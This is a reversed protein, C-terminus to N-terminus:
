IEIQTSLEIVRNTPLNFYEVASGSNRAMAAFLRDRWLAMGEIRISPIIAERSLFFSTELPRCELGQHRCVELAQMIDPQEMFGFKLTIRYCDHGLSDIEVREAAPVWPVEAVIVTLFVVREHLVKNHVLNHLLAHPVTGTASTLFVATGPVRVPPDCYLLELFTDLAVTQQKLQRYLLRRGQRWTAMLTFMVAGVLLPYWGGDHIKYLTASFFLADVCVFLGTAFGAILLSYGWGHRMVFFTLITTILMTGAVAVGYASALKSSSGFAVVTLIVAIFLIRNLGPLYVQGIAKASTHMVDLRPLYGLQIAQRCLSFAGSITAQSAIVTAATALGIMPYLAWDPYAHYFPNAIAGPKAILLAGQGFYNLVLSPLVLGFWAIRIPRKGFHGMDAYLAEAGTVALFISGLVVFSLFGHATVFRLAHVPNTALLVGPYREINYIGAAALALFWLLCIPGFFSGVVTTGQRQVAFLVTLVGVTIPIVYPKFMLTGIELGEVASLVSIAPTLVADGFFLAAGFVGLTLILARLRGSTPYQSSALALLAMIGGEGKNSARMILTVYKLSVIIMLSWFIASLGGLINETDLPIGHSSSFTERVAYLPSTGIDGYVVGLALLTLAPTSSRPRPATSNNQDAHQEM